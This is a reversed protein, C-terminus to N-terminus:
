RRKLSELPSLSRHAERLEDEDAEVYRQVMAMTSHGFLQQLYRLNGGNRLYQRGFFRRFAHFSGETKEVDVAKLVALFDRKLNSYLIPGGNKTCFVLDHEHSNLWRFLAKRCEKEIPVTRRKGGKGKLSVLSNDFDVADRTLTLAENVRAGTDILLYLLAMVRKGTRTAPRHRVIREVEEASYTKLVERPKRALPVRFRTDTYGCEHLWTLFSNIGSAYSNIAGPKLGASAMTVVWEMMKNASLYALCTCGGYFQFARWGDAYSQLTKATANKLIQKERCFREFLVQSNTM